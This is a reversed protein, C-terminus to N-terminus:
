QSNFKNIELADEISWWLKNIRSRITDYKLNKIKCWEALCKWQYIINNRKNRANEIRTTWRCNEKSYNWDNNIRDIQLWEEYSAWMDAYFDEFSNWKCKIWRWGYNKYSIHNSNNCRQTIWKYVEYIKTWNMWHTTSRELLIKMKLCWCSKSNWNRLSGFIVKIENWCDCKCLFKRRKNWSPEIHAKIEKKITLMWYREWRYVPIKNYWGM